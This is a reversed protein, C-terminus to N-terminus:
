CIVTRISTINHLVVLECMSDNNLNAFNFMQLQGIQSVIIPVVRFLLIIM